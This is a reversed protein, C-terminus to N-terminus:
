VPQLKRRTPAIRQPNHTFIGPQEASLCRGTAWERLASIKQSSTSAVPVIYTAAEAPTTELLAALRCCARIEAGTWTTDPPLPTDNPSCKLFHETYISWIQNRQEKTPIDLFFIADFREARTLEPPLSQIDNSTCVVFVSTTHDNLWTLLAGLMGAKVGNDGQHQGTSGALAKEIEDIFLVCPSMADATALARRVNSETQGVLSGMLAGTDLALTPRGTENGLAKAFASKGTGPVGLLLLGRSTLATQTAAKKAFQKLTALGGLSDFSETGRHLKLLGTKALTQTKIDWITEPSINGRRIVSLAFAGEAELRTLGAAADIANKTTTTGNSDAIDTAIAQLQTPTPLAHDIVVFLKQLEIPIETLPSVCIYFTSHQKGELIANQLQQMVMPASTFRHYNTLIVLHPDNSRSEDTPLLPGLPDGRSDGTPHSLGAACDWTVATWKNDTALALIERIVEHPEDSRVWIGSFAAQIYETLTQSLTM